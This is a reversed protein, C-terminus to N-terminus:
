WDRSFSVAFIYFRECVIFVRWLINISKENSIDDLNSPYNKSCNKYKIKPNNKYSSNKSVAGYKYQYYLASWCTTGIYTYSFMILHIWFLIWLRVTICHKEFPYESDAIHEHQYKLDNTFFDLVCKHTKSKKLNVIWLSINVQKFKIESLFLYSHELQDLGVM